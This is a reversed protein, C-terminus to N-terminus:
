SWFCAGASEGLREAAVARRLGQLEGRFTPGVRVLALPAGSENPEFRIDIPADRVGKVRGFRALRAGNFAVTRPLEAPEHAPELLPLVVSWAEAPKRAEATTQSDGVTLVLSAGNFVLSVSANRASRSAKEIAEADTDSIDFSTGDSGVSGLEDRGTAYDDFGSVAVGDASLEVHVLDPAYQAKSDVFLGRTPCHARWSPV